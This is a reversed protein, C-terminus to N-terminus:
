HHIKEVCAVYAAAHDLVTAGCQFVVAMPGQTKFHKLDLVLPPLAPIPRERLCFSPPERLVRLAKDRWSVHEGTGNAPFMPLKCWINTAFSQKGRCRKSFSSCGELSRHEEWLSTIHSAAQGPTECSRCQWATMDIEEVYLRVLRRVIKWEETQLRCSDGGKERSQWFAFGRAPIGAAPHQQLAAHVLYVVSQSWCLGQLQCFQSRNFRGQLWGEHAGEGHLQTGPVTWICVRLRDFEFKNSRQRHKYSRSRNSAEFSQQTMASHAKRARNYPTPRTNPAM